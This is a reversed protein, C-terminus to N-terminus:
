LLSRVFWAVLVVGVVTLFNVRVILPGLSLAMVRLDFALPELAVAVTTVFFQRAASAPLTVAVLETLLGGLVFGGVLILTVRLPSLKRRPLIEM